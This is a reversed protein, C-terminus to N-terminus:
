RINTEELLGRLRIDSVIATEAHLALQEYTCSGLDAGSAVWRSVNSHRTLYPVLNTTRIDRLTISSFISCSGLHRRVHFTRCVARLDAPRLHVCLAKFDILATTDIILLQYTGPGQPVTSCMWEGAGFTGVVQLPSGWAGEGRELVALHM